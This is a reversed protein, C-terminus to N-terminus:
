PSASRNHIATSTMPVSAMGATKAADNCVSPMAREGPLQVSEHSVAGRHTPTVYQDDIVILVDALKQHRHQEIIAVDRLRRTVSALGQALELRPPRVAGHIMGISCRITVAFTEIM